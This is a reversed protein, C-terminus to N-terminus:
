SSRTKQIANWLDSETLKHKHAHHQAKRFLESIEKTTPEILRKLIVMNDKHLVIFKEGKALHMEDRISQPIVIQGREGIKTVEIDMTM